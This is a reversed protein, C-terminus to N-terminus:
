SLYSFTASITPFPPVKEVDLYGSDGEKGTAKHLLSMHLM